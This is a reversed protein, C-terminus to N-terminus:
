NNGGGGGGDGNNNALANALNQLEGTLQDAAGQSIDGNDLDDNIKQEVGNIKQQIARQQRGGGGNNRAATIANELDSLSNQLDRGTNPDITDQGQAIYGDIQARMAELYGIPDAAPDGFVPGTNAVM